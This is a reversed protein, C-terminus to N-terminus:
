SLSRIGASASEVASRPNLYVILSVAIEAGKM